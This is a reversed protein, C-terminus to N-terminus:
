LTEDSEQQLVAGYQFVFTLALLVLVIILNAFDISLTVDMKGNMFSSFLSESFSKLIVWPILSYAFARMKGIVKEEFPSECTEFAKCLGGAFVASVLLCILTVIVAAMVFTLNHISIEKLRDGSGSLILTNGSVEVRDIQIETGEAQLELNMDQLLEGNNIADRDEQSITQGIAEVNVVVSGIGGLRITVFDRPLVACVITGIITFVLGIIVLVKMINALIKGIKGMKNIKSIANEKIKTEM